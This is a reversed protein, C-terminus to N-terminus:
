EHIEFKATQRGEPTFCIIKYRGAPLAQIDITVTSGQATKVEESIYLMGKEDAIWITVTGLDEMFTNTITKDAHSLVGTILTPELSVPGFDEDDSAGGEYELDEDTYQAYSLAPAAMLLGFAMLFM